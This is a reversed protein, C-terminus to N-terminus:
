DPFHLLEIKVLVDLIEDETLFLEVQEQMVLNYDPQLQLYPSHFEKQLTSYDEKTLSYIQVDVSMSM